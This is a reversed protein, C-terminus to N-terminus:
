AHNIAARIAGILTEPMWPKTIVASFLARDAEVAIGDVSHGSVAIVPVARTRPDARLQRTVERGDLGPLSLDMLICAPPIALALLLAKSGDAAQATQFGSLALWTACMERTDAHDDVILILPGGPESIASEAM